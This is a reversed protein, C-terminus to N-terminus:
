VTYWLSEHQLEKINEEPHLIWGLYRISLVSLSKKEIRDRKSLYFRLPEVALSPFVTLCGIVSSALLPQGRYLHDMLSGQGYCVRCRDPLVISLEPYKQRFTPMRSYILRLHISKIVASWNAQMWLTSWMQITWSALHLPDVTTHAIRASYGSTRHVVVGVSPTNYTKTM